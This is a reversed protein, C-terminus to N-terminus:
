LEIFPVFRKNSNAYLQLLDAAVRSPYEILLHQLMERRGGCGICFRLYGLQAKREGGNNGNKEDEYQPLTPNLDMKNGRGGENGRFDQYDRRSQRTFLVDDEQDLGRRDLGDLSRKFVQEGIISDVPSRSLVSEYSAAQCEEHRYLTRDTSTRTSLATRPRSLGLIQHDTNAKGSSQTTQPRSHSRGVLQGTPASQSVNRKSFVDWEKRINSSPKTALADTGAITHASKSRFAKEGVISLPSGRNVVDRDSSTPAIGDSSSSSTTITSEERLILNPQQLGLSFGEPSSGVVWSRAMCMMWSLNAWAVTFDDDEGNGNNADDLAEFLKSPQAKAPFPSNDANNDFGNALSLSTGINLRPLTEPLSHERIDHSEMRQTLLTVIWLPIGYRTLKKGESTTSSADMTLATNLRSPIPYEVDVSPVTAPQAVGAKLTPQIDHSITTPLTVGAISTPQLCSSSIPGNSSV